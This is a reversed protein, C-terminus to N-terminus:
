LGGRLYAIVDALGQKNLSKELEEPMLSIASARIEQINSRLIVEDGEASGGRLTIVAPTEAAIIGDYMRGDKTTVIYNTFRPEIAYSPDLMSTLLEEKTKNNIGSLDPGVRGGQKRPMHCKACNEDFLKKGRGVDGAMLLADRYGDIIKARSGDPNQVLNKARDGLDMLRARAAADLAAVPVQKDEIAKLLAPVRQKSNLLAAVVQTRAEPSYSSWQALLTPAVGPDDFAALSQIAAVQMDSVPKSELVQLLVPASHAYAGGRLARVARVRRTAPLAGDLAEKAAKAVIAKLEFHRAVEWAAQQVAESPNDVLKTLHAEAAGAPIATAGILRLGRALGELVAEPKEHRAVAALVQSLEAPQKRSGVLAALQPALAPHYLTLELFRAPFDSVSSLIALRFWKDEAHRKAISALVTQAKPSKVQGATFSLQFQVRVDTDKELKLVDESLAPLFAEALRLSHERVGPHEDALGRKVDGAELAGLGELMWLAQARGVPNASKAALNRLAPIASKDQRELLIRQATQRHWGNTSELHAVLEVASMKSMAPRMGHKALPTKPAIRYIRGMTDGAYFDMNKKIADPISEPTEIFKRYIDILYLNGDPGNAFNCPRFWVDTSALFEVNDKGRSAKFTVGDPTLIDRHVLNASVDATFLNGWYEKPFVDGSYITGGSAGTFFGGVQEVRNLQNEDYRQQRLKTRQERWAQPKTLPFIPASPQGHDSIDQSVAGAELLPARALYQMPVVAHRTHVTNQTLFRNGWDDFTMGFQTPGSAPEARERIMHFRFDAGRVTVPPLEPHAPSTIRGDRGENAAYIWNDMGLRLNTIRAEPNVKPFGTYLVQRVDAKGDGNTDKFYLIDPASTVILGGKWPMLGSVELVQDAFITSREFRGDGGADELLRIRSRAPKGPAPDDPYDRMEAVYIRGDEDFVMEVPDVVDPEAAFLEATFPESLRLTKEADQPAV